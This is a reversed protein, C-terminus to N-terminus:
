ALSCSWTLCRFGTPIELGAQMLQLPILTRQRISLGDDRFWWTRV